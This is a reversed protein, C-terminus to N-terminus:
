ILGRDIVLKVLETSNKVKLKKMMRMRFTEISRKSLNLIESIEVSTLGKSIYRVIEIERDTLDLASNDKIANKVQIKVKKSANDADKVLLQSISYNVAADASIYTKGNLVHTIAECFSSKTIAKTLFASAGAKFAKDITYSDSYMTLAIIKIFPFKEKVYLTAEIGDVFPMSIDMIVIDAVQKQLFDELQKGDKLSGIVRLNEFSKILTKLGQRFIEHDDVIIVKYIKNKEKNTM